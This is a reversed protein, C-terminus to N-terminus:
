SASLCFAYFDTIIRALREPSEYMGMHGAGELCEVQCTPPLIAARLAIEYPILADREGAVVLAPCPSKRLTDSHDKRAIMGELAQVLAETPYQRAKAILDSLIEPHAAIWELDFLGPFLQSLYADKKGSRLLKIGRRRNAIRMEDDAFPHSHILGVGSLAGPTQSLVELAVYGGMSHGLLIYRKIDLSQLLNTVADAYADIGASPPIPSKGFGPLDVALVPIDSLRGWFTETWIRLDECFGHLLVLPPQNIGSGLLANHQFYLM